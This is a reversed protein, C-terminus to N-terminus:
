VNFVIGRFTKTANMYIHIYKYYVQPLLSLFAKELECERNDRLDLSTLTRNRTLVEELCELVTMSPRNSNHNPNNDNNNESNSKPSLTTIDVPGDTLGASFLLPLISSTSIWDISEIVVRCINCKHTGTGRLNLSTLSTNDLLSLFISIFGKKKIDSNYELNLERLSCKPHRLM